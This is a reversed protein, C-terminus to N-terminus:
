NLDPYCSYQTEDEGSYLLGVADVKGDSLDAVDSVKQMDTPMYFEDNIVNMFNSPVGYMKADVDHYDSLDRM